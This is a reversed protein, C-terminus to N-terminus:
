VLPQGAASCRVCGSVGGTRSDPHSVSRPRPSPRASRPAATVLCTVGITGGGGGDDVEWSAATGFSARGAAIFSVVPGIDEANRCPALVHAADGAAVAEDAIAAFQAEIESRTWGGWGYQWGPM